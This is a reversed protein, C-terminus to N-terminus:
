SATIQEAQSSSLCRIRKRSSRVGTKFSSGFTRMSEPSRWRLGEWEEALTSSWAEQSSLM